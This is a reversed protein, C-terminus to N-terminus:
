VGAAPFARFQHEAIKVVVVPYTDGAANGTARSFGQISLQATTTSASSADLMQTSQGTVTSGSVGTIDACNGVATQALTASAQVEYFIEPDEYVYAVIETAATSAPWYPSVVREGATTLYEVGDFVGIAADGAAAAAITGDTALKVLQGRYISSAYGTAITRAEPRITGGAGHRAPRLGFPASTSPM